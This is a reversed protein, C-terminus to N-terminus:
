STVRFYIVARQSYDTREVTLMYIGLPDTRDTKYNRCLKKM